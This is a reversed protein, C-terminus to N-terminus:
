PRAGRRALLERYGLEACYLRRLEAAVAAAPAADPLPRPARPRAALELARLERLAERRRAPDRPVFTNLHRPARAVGYFNVILARRGLARASPPLEIREIGHWSRENSALLVARNPAPEIARAPSRAPDAYLELRGGWAREWRPHLYLILTARRRRGAVTCNVDLHPELVSGHADRFVGGCRSEPDRILDKEGTAAAVRALLAPSRLAADLASASPGARRLDRALLRAEYGDARARAPLAAAEASLAAFDAPPLFGDIVAHGFPRAERFARRSVLASM